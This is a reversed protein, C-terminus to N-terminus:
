GTQRKMWKHAEVLQDFSQADTIRKKLEDVDLVKGVFKREGEAFTAFALKLEQLEYPKPDRWLATFTTRPNYIGTFALFRTWWHPKYPCEIARPEWKRGQSDYVTCNMQFTGLAVRVTGNQTSSYSSEFFFTELPGTEFCPGTPSM